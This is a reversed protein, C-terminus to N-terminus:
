SKRRAVIIRTAFGMSVITRNCLIDWQNPALSPMLEVFRAGLALTPSIWSMLRGWGMLLRSTLTEGRTVSMACLIGDPELVRYAERVYRIQTERDMCDLVFCSVFRDFVGDQFPFPPPTSVHFLKARGDMQCISQQLEGCLVDSAEALVWQEIFPSRSLVVRVLPGKGPGLEFVRRSSQLAAVAAFELYAERDFFNPALLFLGFRNFYRTSAALDYPQCALIRMMSRNPWNSSLSLM